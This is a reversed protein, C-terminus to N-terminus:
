ILVEDNYESYKENLQSYLNSLARQEKMRRASAVKSLKRSAALRITDDPKGTKNDDFYVDAQAGNGKIVVDANPNTNFKNTVEDAEGATNLAKYAARALDKDDKSMDNWKIRKEAGSFDFGNDTGDKFVLGSKSSTTIIKDATVKGSPTKYFEYDEKVTKKM